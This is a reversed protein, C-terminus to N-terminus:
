QAKSGNIAVTATQNGNNIQNSNVVVTNNNGVTVVNLSNGIASATGYTTGAGTGLGALSSSSITGMTQVGTQHSFSSSTFQGNVVTLNGNGDRLSPNIAQNEQGANMGYPSNYSAASNYDAAWGAQIVAATALLLHRFRFPM